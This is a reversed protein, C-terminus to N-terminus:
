KIIKWMDVKAVSSAHQIVIATGKSKIKHYCALEEETIFARGSLKIGSNLLDTSGIILEPVNVGLELIKLISNPTKTLLFVKQDEYKNALINECAQELTIISAAYGNPKAIMMTSKKMPDNAVDDDIVMIRQAGSTPLYQTLVIGHMLRNDIRALVVKMFKDEKEHNLGGQVVTFM